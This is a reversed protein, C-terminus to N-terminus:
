RSAQRQRYTEIMATTVDQPYCLPAAGGPRSYASRGGCAKGNRMSDDPCACPRGGAHYQARSAEVIIAAIAAATLAGEVKRKVESPAPTASANVPAAQEPLSKVTATPNNASSSTPAAATPPSAPEALAVPKAALPQPVSVAVVPANNMPASQRGLSYAGLATIGLLVLVAGAKMTANLRLGRTLALLSLTANRKQAV